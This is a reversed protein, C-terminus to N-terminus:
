MVHGKVLYFFDAYRHSLYNNLGLFVEKQIITISELSVTKKALTVSLFSRCSYVEDRNPIILAM